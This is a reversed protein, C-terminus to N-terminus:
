CYQILVNHRMDQHRKYGLVKSTDHVHRAKHVMQLPSKHSCTLNHTQQLSLGRGNSYPWAMCWSQRTMGHCSCYSVHPISYLLLLPCATVAPCNMVINAKTWLARYELGTTRSTLEAADQAGYPACHISVNWPVKKAVESVNKECSFNFGPLNLHIYM